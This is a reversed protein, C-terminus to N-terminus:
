SDTGELNKTKILRFIMPKHTALFQMCVPKRLLILRKKNSMSVQPRRDGGRSLSNQVNKGDDSQM